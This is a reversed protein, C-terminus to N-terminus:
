AVPKGEIPLRMVFTTGHGPQSEVTLTGGHQEAVIFYSVALGLGTGEGVEKTTFFPEFVRQCLAEPIGPGNDSVELRVWQGERALRLHLRSGAEAPQQSMAQAANKLLNLLM